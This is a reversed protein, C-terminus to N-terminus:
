CGCDETIPTIRMVVSINVNPTILVNNADGGLGTGVIERLELKVEQGWISNCVVYADGNTIINGNNFQGKGATGGGDDHTYFIATLPTNIFERSILDTGDKIPLLRYQNSPIGNFVLYLTTENVSAVANLGMSVFEVKCKQNYTDADLFAPATPFRMRTSDAVSPNYQFSFEIPMNKKM